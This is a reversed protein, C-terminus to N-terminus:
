YPYMSFDGAKLVKEHFDRLIVHEPFIKDCFSYITKSTTNNM